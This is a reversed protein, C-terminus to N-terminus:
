GRPMLAAPLHPVLDRPPFFFSDKLHGPIIRLLGTPLDGPVHPCGSLAELDAATDIDDIVFSGECVLKCDSKAFAPYLNFLGLAVFVVLALLKKSVDRKM